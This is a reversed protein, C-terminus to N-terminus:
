NLRSKSEGLVPVRFLQPICPNIEAAISPIAWSRAELIQDDHVDLWPECYVGDRHRPTIVDQWIRAQWIKMLGKAGIDRRYHAGDFGIKEVAAYAQDRAAPLSDAWSTVGLVRGGSTVFQEGIKQTGAHFVKTRHLRGVADLGGVVKGKAYAGPYGQSAM